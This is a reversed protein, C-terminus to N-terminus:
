ISLKWPFQPIQLLYTAYRYTVAAFNCGCKAPQLKILLCGTGVFEEEYEGQSKSSIIIVFSNFQCNGHASHFKCYTLLTWRYCRCFQLRMDSGNNSEAILYKGPSFQRLLLKWAFIIAAGAVASHGSNHLKTWFVVKLMIQYLFCM